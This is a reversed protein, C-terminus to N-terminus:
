ILWLLLTVDCLTSFHVFISKLLSVTSRFNIFGLSGICTFVLGIFISTLPRTASAKGTKYFLKGLLGM